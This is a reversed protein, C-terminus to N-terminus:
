ENLQEIPSEEMGEMSPPELIIEPEPEPEIVAIPEVVLSGDIIILERPAVTSSRPSAIGRDELLQNFAVGYNHHAAFISSIEAAGHFALIENIEEDSLSWFFKFSQNLDDINARTRNEIRQIPAEIKELNELLRSKIPTIQIKM